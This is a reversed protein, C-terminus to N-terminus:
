VQTCATTCGAPRWMGKHTFTCIDHYRIYHNRKMCLYHDRQPTRAPEILTWASDYRRSEIALMFSVGAIQGARPACPSPDIDKRPEGGASIEWREREHLARGRGEYCACNLQPRRARGERTRMARVQRIRGLVLGVLQGRPRVASIDHASAGGRHGAERVGDRSADRLLRGRPLYISAGYGEQGWGGQEGQADEPKTWM